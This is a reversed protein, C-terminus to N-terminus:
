AQGGVIAPPNKESIDGFNLTGSILSILWFVQTLLVRYSKDSPSIVWQLCSSSIPVTSMFKNTIFLCLPM